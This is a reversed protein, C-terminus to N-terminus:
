RMRSGQRPRDACSVVQVRWCLKVFGGLEIMSKKLADSFHKEDHDLFMLTPVARYQLFEKTRAAYGPQKARPNKALVLQVADLKEPTLTGAVLFQKSAINALGTALRWDALQVRSMEGTWVEGGSKSQPKGEPDLFITKSVDGAGSTVLTFEVSAPAVEPHDRPDVPPDLKPEIWESNTASDAQPDHCNPRNEQSDSAARSHGEEAGDPEDGPPAKTMDEISM